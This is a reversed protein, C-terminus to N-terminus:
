DAQKRALVVMRKSESTYPSGSIDGFLDVTRFGAGRLLSSIAETSYHRHVLDYQKIKGNKEVHWRVIQLGDEPLRGEVTVTVGEVTPHEFREGRSFIDRVNELSITDILLRGGEKLSRYINAVVLEDDDQNGFYGFSSYFNWVADFGDPRAFSLMDAQVFEVQLREKRAQRRGEEIYFPMLDVATVRYGKRAFELAHRGPGCALDLIAAGESLRLLSLGQQVETPANDWNSRNFIFPTVDRWFDKNQYWESM